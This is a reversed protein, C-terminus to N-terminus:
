AYDIKVEMHREYTQHRAFNRWTRSWAVLAVELTFRALIAKSRNM